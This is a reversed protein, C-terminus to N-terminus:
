KISAKVRRERRQQHQQLSLMFLTYSSCLSSSSLSLSVYLIAKLSICSHVVAPTAASFHLGLWFRSLCSFLFCTDPEIAPIQGLLQCRRWKVQHSLPHKQRRSCVQLKPFTEEMLAQCSVYDQWLASKKKLLVCMTHTFFGFCVFTLSGTIIVHAGSVINQDKNTNEHKCELMFSCLACLCQQVPCLNPLCLSFRRTHQAARREEGTNVWSHPDHKACQGLCWAM